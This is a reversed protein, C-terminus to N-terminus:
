DEKEKAELQAQKIAEQMKASTLNRHATYLIAKLFLYGSPILLAFGAATLSISWELPIVKAKTVVDQIAYLQTLGAWVLLIAPKGFGKSASFSLLWLPALFLAIAKIFISTTSYPFLSMSEATFFDFPSHLAINLPKVTLDLVYALVFLGIIILMSYEKPIKM